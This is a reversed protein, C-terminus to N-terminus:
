SNAFPICASFGQHAVGPKHADNGLLGARAFASIHHEAYEQGSPGDGDPDNCPGALHALVPTGGFMGFAIGLMAIILSIKLFKSKKM